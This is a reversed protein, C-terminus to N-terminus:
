SHAHLEHFGIKEKFDCGEGLEDQKMQYSYCSMDPFLCGLGHNVCALPALTRRRDEPM